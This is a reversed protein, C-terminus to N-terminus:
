GSFVVHWVMVVASCVCVAEQLWFVRIVCFLTMCKGHQQCPDTSSRSCQLAAESDLADRIRSRACLYIGPSQSISPHVIGTM